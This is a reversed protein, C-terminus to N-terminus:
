TSIHLKPLKTNEVKEVRGRRELLDVAGQKVHLFRAVLVVEGLRVVPVPRGEVLTGAFDGEFVPEVHPSVGLLYLLLDDLLLELLIM